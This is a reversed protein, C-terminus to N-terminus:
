FRSVYFLLVKHIILDRFAQAQHLFRDAAENVLVQFGKGLLHLVLIVDRFLDDL